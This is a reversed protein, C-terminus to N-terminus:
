FKADLWQGFFRDYVQYGDPTRYIIEKDLM